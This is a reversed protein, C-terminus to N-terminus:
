KLVTEIYPRIFFGLAGSLTCLVWVHARWMVKVQHVIGLEGDKGFLTEEHHKVRDQIYENNM